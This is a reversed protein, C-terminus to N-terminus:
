FLLFYFLIFCISLFLRQGDVTVYVGWLKENRQFNAGLEKLRTEVLFPIADNLKTEYEELDGYSTAKRGSFISKGNEDKVNVLIFSYIKNELIFRIFRFCCSWSL